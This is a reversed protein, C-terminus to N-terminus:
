KQSDRLSQIVDKGAKKEFEAYVPEVAKVWAAKDPTVVEMGKKGLEQALRASM